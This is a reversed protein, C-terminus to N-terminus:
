GVMILVARDNHVQSRPLYWTREVSRIELQHTQIYYTHDDIYTPIHKNEKGTSYALLLLCIVQANAMTLVSQGHFCAFLELVRGVHRSRDCELSAHCWPMYAYTNCMITHVASFNATNKISNRHSQPRWESSTFDSSASGTQLESGSFDVRVAAVSLAQVTWAVALPRRNM